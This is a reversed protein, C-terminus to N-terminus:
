LLRSDLGSSESYCILSRGQRHAFPSLLCGFLSRALSSGTLIARVFGVEGGNGFPPDMLGVICELRVAEIGERATKDNGIRSQAELGSCTSLSPRVAAVLLFGSSVTSRCIRIESELAPGALILIPVCGALVGWAEESPCHMAVVGDDDYDIHIM